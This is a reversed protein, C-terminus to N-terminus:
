VSYDLTDNYLDTGQVSYLVTAQEFPVVNKENLCWQKAIYVATLLICYLIFFIKNYSIDNFIM